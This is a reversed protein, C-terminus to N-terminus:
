QNSPEEIKYHIDFDGMAMYTLEALVRPKYRHVHSITHQHCPRMMRLIQKVCDVYQYGTQFLLISDTFENEYITQRYM